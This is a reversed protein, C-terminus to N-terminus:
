RPFIYEAVRAGAEVAVMIVAGGEVVMFAAVVAVVLVLDIGEM